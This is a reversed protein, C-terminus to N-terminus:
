LLQSGPSGRPGSRAEPGSGTEDLEFLNFDLDMAPIGLPSDSAPRCTEMLRAFAEGGGGGDVLLGAATNVEYLDDAEGVGALGPLGKGPLNDLVDIIVGQVDRHTVITQTPTGKEDTTYAEGTPVGTAEITRTVRVSMGICALSDQSEQFGTPAALSCGAPTDTHIQYTETIQVGSNQAALERLEAELPVEGVKEAFPNSGPLEGAIAVAQNTGPPDAPLTENGPRANGEM